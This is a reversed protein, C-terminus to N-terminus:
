TCTRAAKIRRDLSPMAVQPYRVNEILAAKRKRIGFLRRFLHRLLHTM